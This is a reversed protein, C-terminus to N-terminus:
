VNNKGEMTPNYFDCDKLAFSRDAKKDIDYAHLIWQMDPHWETKTFEIRKPIANRLTYRGVHNRYYFQLQANGQDQPMNMKRENFWAVFDNRDKETEFWLNCSLKERASVVNIKSLWDILNNM